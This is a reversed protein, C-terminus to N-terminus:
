VQRALKLVNPNEVIAVGQKNGDIKFGSGPSVALKEEKLRDVGLHAAKLMAKAVSDVPAGVSDSVKALLGVVPAAIGEGPKKEERNANMLFGPRIIICREYLKALGEETLGKSKSYPIFSSSSSGASSVYVMTAKSSSAKLAEAASLVYGRDIKEFNAMGGAAAKTTGLTIYVADASPLASLKSTESADNNYLKEFDVIVEKLEVGSAVPPPSPHARRAISYVTKYSSKDSLLQSLLPKGVAGSAGLSILRVIPVPFSDKDAQDFAGM